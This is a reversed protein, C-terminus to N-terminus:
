SPARLARAALLELDQHISAIQADDFRLRGPTNASRALVSDEAETMTKFARALRALEDNKLHETQEITQLIAATSATPPLGLATRLREAFAAKLECLVLEPRTTPQALVALRGATGGQAVLPPAQTFRSPRPPPRQASSNYAWLLILTGFGAALVLSIASPLGTENLQELQGLSTNLASRLSRGISRSAPYRGVESFDNALIYLKGSRKGWVDDDVLYRVLGRAFEANGPYQMMLDIFVSPDGMALLRGCPETASSGGDGLGCREANGIVGTLALPVSTGTADRFELLSTLRMDHAPELIMPHNTIVQTVSQVMPHRLVGRENVEVSPTAILLEPNDLYRSINAPPRRTSIHFRRLFSAGAGFDDLVALRGGGALFERADAFSLSRTPHLLLVGDNPRLVGWDLQAGLVVRPRGLEERALRLLETCANWQPAVFDFDARAQAAPLWGCLTLALLRVCAGLVRLRPSHTSQPCRTQTRRVRRHRRQSDLSGLEDAGM